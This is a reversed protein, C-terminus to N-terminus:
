GVPNRQGSAPPGSRCERQLAIVFQPAFNIALDILQLSTPIFQSKVALASVM